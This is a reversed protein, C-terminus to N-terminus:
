SPPMVPLCRIHRAFAADAFAAFAVLMSTLPLRLRCCVEVDAAVRFEDADFRKEARPVPAM